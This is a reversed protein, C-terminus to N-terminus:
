MNKRQFGFRVLALISFILLLSIHSMAGFLDAISDNGDDASANNIIVDLGSLNFNITATQNTQISIVEDNGAEFGQYTVESIPHPNTFSLDTLSSSYPGVNSVGAFETNLSNVHLTYNGAPLYIKYFGTGQKLYDSIISYSDGSSIDEVWINAGLIAKNDNDVFVGQLIGFHNDIDTSPYLASLASSDDVHLSVEERCRVPYMLPYNNATDSCFGPSGIFSENRNINLQSHDLGFFHGIEHALLLKFDDNTISNKGNIVAFGEVFFDSNSSSISQAFGIILDSQGAGFYLDIIKGDSDFVIPNINDDANFNSNDVAPLYTQANTENVDLNLLTQNISLSVTATNVSNWLEFAEQILTVAIANSLSGLDGSEVHVTIVPNQYRVATNGDAGAIVSPGGAFSLSSYYLLSVLLFQNVIHRM